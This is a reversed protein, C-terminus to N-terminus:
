RDTHVVVVVHENEITGTTIERIEGYDNRDDIRTIHVSQFVATAREFSFGHTEINRTNKNEDWEFLM